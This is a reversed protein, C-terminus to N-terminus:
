RKGKVKKGTEESPHRPLTKFNDAIAEKWMKVGEDNMIM